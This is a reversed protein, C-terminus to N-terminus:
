KTEKQPSVLSPKQEGLEGPDVLACPECYGVVGHKCSSAPILVHRFMQEAEDATLLNTGIRNPYGRQTACLDSCVSGPLPWSLFRDVLLSLKWADQCLPCIAAQVPAGVEPVHARELAVAALEITCDPKHTARSKCGCFPCRMYSGDALGRLAEAQANESM